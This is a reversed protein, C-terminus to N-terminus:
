YLWVGCKMFSVALRYMAIFIREDWKPSPIKLFMGDNLVKWYKLFVDHIRLFDNLCEHIRDLSTIEFRCLGKERIVKLEFPQDAFRDATFGPELQARTQSHCEVTEVIIEFHFIRFTIDDVGGGLHASIVATCEIQCTQMHAHDNCSM